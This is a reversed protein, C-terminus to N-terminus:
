VKHQINKFRLYVGILLIGFVIAPVYPSVAIPFLIYSFVLGTYAIILHYGWNFHVPSSKGYQYRVLNRKVVATGAVGILIPILAVFWNLTLISRAIAMYVSTWFAQHALEAKLKTEDKVTSTEGPVVIQKTFRAALNCCVVYLSTTKDILQDTEHTGLLREYMAKEKTAENQVSGMDFFSAVIMGVMALAWLMIHKAFM